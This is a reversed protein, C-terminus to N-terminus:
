SVNKMTKICAMYLAAAALGRPDKGSLGNRKKVKILISIALQETDRLLNLM